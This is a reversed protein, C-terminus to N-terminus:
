AHAAPERTARATGADPAQSHASAEVVDALDALVPHTLLDRLSVARDLVIALKVAALSTGGRDFFHDHRGIQDVPVGLVEAWAAALRAETPTRPGPVLQATEGQSADLEAALATLSTRDIKGNATLPLSERHHLTHPVMYVPLRLALHTRLDEPPLPRDASYFAVLHRGGDPLDTVVVAGDRVGPARTLADEIEGIEIRFGSIKVQHDRRGLFELKGDPLWRGIDGGRYLREGQQYPDSLYVSATREPDNVYGRGVCVGSFVIEGPAGLPVPVLREDVVYVRVNRIPRGLPVRSGVLAGEMVEHNTDDSTETLGYANVLKITRGAAFWRQVLEAKLAEGTVSVCRLAPLDRHHTDLYSVVAELYSPVVQMVAVGAGEITDVFREVDLIAEQDVILTRGGAVLPAVLQWLSIDFCQPACQAVTDEPTIGLDEIKALVHNVMGAHECMAGKPEGTSGSTFYLYALQDPRVEVGLDPAGDPASAAISDLDMVEPREHADFTDLAELLSRTSVAQTLVYRCGSRRLVRAIRDAPFLPDIPLYAGGAKLIALVATLWELNRETVVAVVDEPNLGEELLARGVGNARDNLQAYTWERDGQAAAARGPHARVREEFMQHVRRDPLERVPGVFAELQHRIEEPSVLADADVPREPAAALQDLAAVHYSALRRAYDGDIADTRYRLRLCGPEPDLTLSVSLLITEVLNAPPSEPREDADVVTEFPADSREPERQQADAGDPKGQQADAADRRQAVEPDRAALGTASVLDRWTGGVPLSCPRLTGHEALGAVVVGEGTLTSLVKAHAALLLVSVPVGLDDACRALSARLGDPLIQEHDAAGPSPTRSWRPLTTM